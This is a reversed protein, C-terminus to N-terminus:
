DDIKMILLTCKMAECFTLLRVTPLFTGGFGFFFFATTDGIFYAISGSGCTLGIGPIKKRPGREKLLEFPFRGSTADTACLLGKRNGGKALKALKM